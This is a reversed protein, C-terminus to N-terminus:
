PLLSHASSQISFDSILSDGAVKREDRRAEDKGTAEKKGPSFWEATTLSRGVWSVQLALFRGWGKKNLWWVEKMKAEPLDTWETRTRRASIADSESGGWSCSRRNDHRGSLDSLWSLWSRDICTEQAKRLWFSLFYCLLPFLGWQSSVMLLSQLAATQKSRHSHFPFVIAGSVQQHLSLTVSFM